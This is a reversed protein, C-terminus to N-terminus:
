DERKEDHKRGGMEKEVTKIFKFMNLASVAVGAIIAVIVVWSGLSLKNKLWVAIITCLLVPTVMDLGFQTIHGAARMYRYKNENDPMNDTM